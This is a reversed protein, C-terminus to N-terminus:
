PSVVNRLMFWLNTPREALRRVFWPFWFEGYAVLVVSRFGESALREQEPRQIGFLMQVEVENRGLGETLAFDTIRHILRVDHTGFAAVRCLKRARARLMSQALSFYNNDVDSKQPFAVGPPENYAGKVLRIAPRLPLLAELDKQTRLLYAQLCIGVNPHSQLIRRYIELTEDTYESSEMDIWVTTEPRERGAILKLNDFCFERSLDLGLQTLKVSISSSLSSKHIRELVELYHRTVQEAEPRGQVNEGLHTFITGIQKGQLTQAAALADELTEGPMFRSATRRVFPYRTARERLWSSQSARLLLTRMVNM